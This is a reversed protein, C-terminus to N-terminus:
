RRRRAPGPEPSGGGAHGDVLREPREGAADLDDGLLGAGTGTTSGETFALRLGTRSKQSDIQPAVSAHMDEGVAGGGGAPGDAVRDGDDHDEHDDGQHDRDQQQGVGDPLLGALDVVAQGLRDVVGGRQVSSFVVISAASTIAAPSRRPRLRSPPQRHSHEGQRRRLPAQPPAGDDAAEDHDEGDGGQEGDEHQQHARDVPPDHQDADVRWCAAALVASVASMASVAAFTSAM